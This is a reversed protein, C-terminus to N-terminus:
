TLNDGPAIFAVLSHVAHDDLNTRNRDYRMTTRPEAHRALDQVKRLSAGSELANTICSHRLVHSTVKTEIGARKSMTRIITNLGSRKMARSGDGVLLLPGSTRGDAAVELARVVSVPLPMRAPVGGKGVFELVRHGRLTKEFNQCQISCAESARLAMCALLFAAACYRGGMESGVTLFARMQDRDLGLTDSLGTPVRPRRAYVAPDRVVAGEYAAFRYFGRVPTLATCTSSALMNLDILLHQIYREVDARRVQLPDLGGVSCWDLYRGLYLEYVELTGRSYPLLYDRVLQALEDSLHGTKM